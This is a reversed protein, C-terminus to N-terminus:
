IIYKELIYTNYNESYTAGIKLEKHIQLALKPIKSNNGYLIVKSPYFISNIVFSIAKFEKGSFLYLPIRLIQVESKKLYIFEIYTTNINLMAEKKNLSLLDELFLFTVKQFYDELIEKLKSIQIGNMNKKTIVKIKYGFLSIKIKNKRIFENWEFYFKQEDQIEDEKLYKCKTEYLDNKRQDLLYLMNDNIYCIYREKKM